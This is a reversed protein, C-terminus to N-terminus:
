RKGQAAIRACVQAELDLLRQKLALGGGYGMLAGNSGIVRHCPVLIPIPNAGNAAGVARVATPAGIAAAIQGYSRTEGYPINLLESWVRRQFVTGSPDLPVRFSRLDGAFYARLQRASEVLLPHAPSRHGELPAPAHFRVARLGSPAAELWVRLGAAVEAELWDTM